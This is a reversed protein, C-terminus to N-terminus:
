HITLLNALAKKNKFYHVQNEKMPFTKKKINQQMASLQGLLTLATSKSEGASRMCLLIIRAAQSDTTYASLGLPM